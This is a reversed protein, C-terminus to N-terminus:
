VPVLLLLDVEDDTLAAAIQPATTEVLDTADLIYGMTSIHRPSVSGIVGAAALEHLRRVPLVVDLDDEAPTHNVHLHSFRVDDGTVDHPLARWSPDGWWPDVWEGEQDFPRDSRLSIAATSLLAVRCEALPARLPTWSPPGSPQEREAWAQM